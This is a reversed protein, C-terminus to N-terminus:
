HQFVGPFVDMVLVGLLVYRWDAFSVIIVLVLLLFFITDFSPLNDDKIRCQIRYSLSFYIWLYISMIAIRNPIVVENDIM